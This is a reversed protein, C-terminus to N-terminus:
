KSQEKKQSVGMFSSASMKPLIEVLMHIHDPYVKPETKLVMKEIESTSMDTGESKIINVQKWSCLERLIKGIEAKM